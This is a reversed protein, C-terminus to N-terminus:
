GTRQNAMAYESMASRVDAFRMSVQNMQHVVEAWDMQSTSTEISHCLDALADAGMQRASGRMSHAEAKVTTADRDAVAIELREYRSATDSLFTEILELVLSDLGVDGFERLTEPLHWM